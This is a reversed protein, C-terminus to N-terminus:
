SMVERGGGTFAIFRLGVAISRWFLPGWLLYMVDFTECLAREVAAIQNTASYYM